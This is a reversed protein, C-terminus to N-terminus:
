IKHMCRSQSVPAQRPGNSSAKRRTAHWSFASPGDIKISFILYIHSHTNSLPVHQVVHTKQISGCQHGRRKKRMIWHWDFSLGLWALCHLVLANRQSRSFQIDFHYQSSLNVWKIKHDFSNEREREEFNRFHTLSFFIITGVSACVCLKYRHIKKLTFIDMQVDVFHIHYTSQLPM